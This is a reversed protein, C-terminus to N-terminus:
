PGVPSSNRGYCVLPRGQVRLLVSLNLPWPPSLPRCLGRLSDAAPRPRPPGLGRGGSAPRGAGLGLGRGGAVQVCPGLGLGGRCLVPQGPDQGEPGRRLNEHSLPRHNSESVAATDVQSCNSVLFLVSLVAVRTGPSGRGRGSRVAKGNRFKAAAHVQQLRLFLQEECCGELRLPQSSLLLPAYFCAPRESWLIRVM